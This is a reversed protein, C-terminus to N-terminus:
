RADELVGALIALAEDIEDDTVLLPPAFRLATPAVANVILGRELALDKCRVAAPADLEAALLLGRGRVAAVGPLAVLGAVLQAGRTRARACVDDREMVSLVTLATRAALPQGGFTTGHDGPRLAEGAAGRAWCAGIPMGNGLAKAMLVVDPTVEDHQHAFWRGTRGFGTQVEDVMLLAGTRDCARRAAALYGDPAVNVGGEGQIPEVLVAAVDADVAADLAGADGFPVFRIDPVLPEFPARKAPQGTVSLAGMTRGHFSGETAVVVRAGREAGVRRALKLGAENAEAGSNCFFTRGGGGLLADIRAALAPQYENHFFNSVHVLTAAQEAIAAAVEPHAHGLSCVAIGSLFDLYRTGSEDWVETGAGRVLTVARPGYTQMGYAADLSAATTM